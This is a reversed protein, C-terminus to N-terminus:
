AGAGGGAGARVHPLRGGREMEQGPRRRVVFEIGAEGIPTQTHDIRPLRYRYGHDLLQLSLVQADPGLRTLMEVVNRSRPSWSRVKHITFTWKHDTNFTSPWVGQEYLDEDPVTVVLHGGPRLVRYWNALAVDPERMHELCHSSYVFDFSADDVGGLDQADGDALDWIRLGRVGPFLELYLGLSDIGGGM